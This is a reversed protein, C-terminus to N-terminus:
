EPASANRWVHECLPCNKGEKRNEHSNGFLQHGAFSEKVDPNLDPWLFPFAFEM